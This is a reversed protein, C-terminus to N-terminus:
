SIKRFSLIRPLILEALHRTDEVSGSYFYSLAVTILPSQQILERFRDLFSLIKHDSWLDGKGYFTSHNFLDIDLDFATINGKLKDLVSQPSTHVYQRIPKRILIETNLGREINRQYCLFHIEKFWEARVAPSIFSVKRITKDRSITKRLRNNDSLLDMLAKDNDSFDDDGDWHYDAHFLAEPLINRNLSWVFLAWKHDDMVWVGPAIERCYDNHANRPYDISLM